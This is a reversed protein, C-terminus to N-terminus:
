LQFQCCGRTWYLDAAVADLFAVTFRCRVPVVVLAEFQSTLSLPWCVTPKTPQTRKLENSTTSSLSLSLSLILKVRLTEVLRGWTIPNAFLDKLDKLNGPWDRSEELEETRM